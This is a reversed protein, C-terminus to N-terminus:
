QEKDVRFQSLLNVVKCSMQQLFTVEFIYFNHSFSSYIVITLNKHSCTKLEKSFVIFFILSSLQQIVQYHESVLFSGFQRRFNHYEVNEGATFLLNLQECGQHCKASCSNTIKVLQYLQIQNINGNTKAQHDKTQHM